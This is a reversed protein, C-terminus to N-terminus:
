AWNEGRTQLGESVPAENRDFFPRTVGIQELIGGPAGGPVPEPRIEAIADGRVVYFFSHEPIRVTKGTAPIPTSGPLALTGTHTGGQRWKVAIVTQRLEPADHEYHWDPFGAYIARLMQLFERRNLTKSPTIFALDESVTRGIGEVDHNKLGEIYTWLVPPISNM